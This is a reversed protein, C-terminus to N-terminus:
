RPIDRASRMASQRFSDSVSLLDVVDISRLTPIADVERRISLMTEWVVEDSGLIGIDLDSRESADGVATSGFLVIKYDGPVNRRIIEAVRDIIAERTM